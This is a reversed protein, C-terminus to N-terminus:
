GALAAIKLAIEAPPPMAIMEARLEAAAGRLDVATLLRQLMETNLSAPDAVIAARRRALVTANYFHDSGQPLILQPLGADLATLATGAGGHHIVAGCTALLVDLPVWGVHCVNPPFVGLPRETAQKSDTPAVGLTVIFDADVESAARVISRVPGFGRLVPVVTGLTIAILPRVPRRIAATDLCGAGNYPVYRMPWGSSTAPRLSPPAVDIWAASPAVKEVSHRECAAGMRSYMREFMLEPTQALGIGLFVGPISMKAAAVPAASADPSHVIVDARWESAAAVVGDVMVDGLSMFLDVTEPQPAPDQKALRASEYYASKHRQYIPRLDVGPAVDIVPLGANTVAGVAAGCSGVLVECGASRLARATPVIPFVNGYGPPTVLLIRKRKATM